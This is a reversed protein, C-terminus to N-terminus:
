VNILELTQEEALNSDNWIVSGNLRLFRYILGVLPGPRLGDVMMIQHLDNSIGEGFFHSLTSRMGM